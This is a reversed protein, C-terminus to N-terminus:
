KLIAEYLIELQQENGKEDKILVVNAGDHIVKKTHFTDYIDILNNTLLHQNISVVELGILLGKQAADSNPYVSAVVIKENEFKVTFGLSLFPLNSYKTFEQLSITKKKWDITTKYNSTFQLGVTKVNGKSFDVRTHNLKIDGIEVNNVVATFNTDPKGIGYLGASYNGYNWIYSQIKNKKKLKRFTRETGTIDGNSGTDFVILDDNIGDLKVDIIPTGTITPTFKIKPTSTISKSTDPASSFSIKKHQFDITWTARKMLNAGIIGDIHLAKMEPTKDFDAIAACTNLFDVGGITIIPVSTFGLDSNAGQSDMTKQKAKVELKMENALSTSLVNPAGTDFIMNRQKGNIIPQIVILNMRYEFPIEQSFTKQAVSGERM